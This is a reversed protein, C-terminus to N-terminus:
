HRNHKVNSIIESNAKSIKETHADYIFIAAISSLVVLVFVRYWSLKHDPQHTPPSLNSFEHLKM